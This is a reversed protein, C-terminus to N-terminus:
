LDSETSRPPSDSNNPQATTRRAGALALVGMVGKGMRLLKGIKPADGTACCDGAMHGQDRCTAREDKTVAIIDGHFILINIERTCNASALIMSM